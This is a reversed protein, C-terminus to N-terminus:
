ALLTVDPWTQDRKSKKTPFKFFCAPHQRIQATDRKTVNPWTEAKLNLQFDYPPVMHIYIYLYLYIYINRQTYVYTNRSLYISLYIHIYITHTHSHSSSAPRGWNVNKENPGWIWSVAPILKHVHPHVRSQIPTSSWNGHRKVSVHRSSGLLLEFM